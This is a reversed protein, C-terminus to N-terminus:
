GASKQGAAKAQPTQDNTRFKDREANDNNTWVEGTQDNVWTIGGTAKAVYKSWTDEMKPSEEEECKTSERWLMERATDLPAPQDEYHQAITPQEECKM